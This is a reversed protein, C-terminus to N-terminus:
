PWPSRGGQLSRPADDGSERGKAQENRDGGSGVVSGGGGFLGGLRVGEGVPEVAVRKGPVLHLLVPGVLQVAIRVVKRIRVVTSLAQGQVRGVGQGVLQLLVEGMQGVESRQGQGLFHGLLLYAVHELAPQRHGGEVGLSVEHGGGTQLDRTDQVIQVGIRRFM